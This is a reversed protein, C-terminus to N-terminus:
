RKRRSYFNVLWSRWRRFLSVDAFTAWSVDYLGGNIIDASPNSPVGGALVQKLNCFLGYGLITLVILSTITLTKKAEKM